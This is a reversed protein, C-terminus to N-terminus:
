TVAPAARGESVAWEEAMTQLIHLGAARPEMGKTRKQAQDAFGRRVAWIGKAKKAAPVARDREFDRFMKLIGAADPDRRPHPLKYGIKRLETTLLEAAARPTDGAEVFRSMVALGHGILKADSISDPVRQPKPQARDFIGTAGTVLDIIGRHAQKLPRLLEDDVDNHYDNLAALTREIAQLSRLRPDAAVPITKGGIVVAGVDGGDAIRQVVRLKTKLLELKDARKELAAANRALAEYLARPIEITDHEM